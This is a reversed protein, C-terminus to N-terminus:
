LKGEKRDPINSWTENFGLGGHGWWRKGNKKDEETSAISEVTMSAISRYVGEGLPEKPNWREAQKLARIAKPLHTDNHNVALEFIEKWSKKFETNSSTFQELNLKPRNQSTFYALDMTFKGRLFKVGLKPDIQQVTTPLFLSSTLAHMLFFNLLVEKDPRQPGAYVAVALNMLERAKNVLEEKDPTLSWKNVYELVLEPKKDLVTTLGSDDYTVLGDFRSDDLTEKAIELATKSSTNETNESSKTENPFLVKARDAHVCMQALGEAVMGDIGFELGYGTHIFPHYAGGLWRSLMNNQEDFAYKEVAAVRGLKKVENLMFDLYDSYYDGDGLHETWNFGNHKEPKPRQKKAEREYVEKLRTPSAGLSFDALLMHTLHNHYGIENFFIHHENADKVLLEEVLKIEIPSITPSHPFAGPINSPLAFSELRFLAIKDEAIEGQAQCVLLILVITSFLPLFQGRM